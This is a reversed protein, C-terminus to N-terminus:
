CCEKMNHFGAHISGATGLRRFHFLDDPFIEISRKIGFFDM